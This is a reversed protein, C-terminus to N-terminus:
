LEGKLLQNLRRKLEEATPETHVKKEEVKPMIVDDSLAIDQENTVEASFIDEAIPLNDPAASKSVNHVPMEPFNPYVSRSAIEQLNELGSEIAKNQEEALAQALEAEARSQSFSENEMFYDQGDEKEYLDELAELPLPQSSKKGRSFNRLSNNRFADQLGAAGKRFTTLKGLIISLLTGFVLSIIALWQWGVVAVKTIPGDVIRLDVDEKINYYSSTVNFLTRVTKTVVFASMAENKASISISITSGDKSLPKIFFMNNWIRKREDAKKGFSTDKISPNEKLLRDYFSLMKPLEIINSLIQTQQEIATASKSVVLITVTSQYIKLQEVGLLFFTASLVVALITAQFSFHIKKFLAKM